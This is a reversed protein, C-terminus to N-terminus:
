ISCASSTHRHRVELDDRQLADLGPEDDDGDDDDDDLGDDLGDEDDDDDDEDLAGSSGAGAVEQLLPVYGLLGYQIMFFSCHALLGLM